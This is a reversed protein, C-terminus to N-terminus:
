MIAWTERHRVRDCTQCARRQDVLVLVIEGHGDLLVCTVDLEDCTWSTRLGLENKNDRINESARCPIDSAWGARM